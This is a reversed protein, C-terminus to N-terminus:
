NASGPLRPSRPLFHAFGSGPRLGERMFFARLPAFSRLAELGLGRAIQAPLMSSLLSRNLADVSGTRALIDPRRARDYARMVRDSGPDGPDGAVARVLTEVDRTGLNLGQAGIPPFVHAAEGILITRHAAFAHPVLGSPPWAQPRVDIAVRGLMWQMMEEIRAALAADDLALLTEARAPNVVWVLSSRRGKLPVQTFPGEETHFETSVNQHDVTHAFSLVVATQPYTWRRARIGAAERAASNRGDAAVLLRAHLTDGGALTVTVHDGNPRYEIAPTTIRRINGSGAVAEALKANLVANPINYGFAEEGIEGARFTVAPSRILRRTADVIRMSALPAAEPAIADWVGIQGLFRIAPMMLATTRRDDADTEPGILVSRWGAAGLALAAMMGAPGGGSIVIDTLSKSAVLDNM